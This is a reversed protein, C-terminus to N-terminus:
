GVEDGSAFDHAPVGENYAAVRLRGGFEAEQVTSWTCNGMTAFAADASLPLGILELMAARLCAGHTVVVGVEGPGLAALFSRLAPVMRALVDATSEAGPVLCTEDEALWAAYERPFREQFEVRTLGSREGRLVGATARGGGRDCRDAGGRIGRDSERALDSSWIRSPRLAAVFPAMAQAQAHGVEDLPIDTHGQARKALNWDTRGHRVLVLKRTDGSPFGSM